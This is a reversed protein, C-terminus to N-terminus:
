ENILEEMTKIRNGVEIYKEPSLVPIIDLGLCKEMREGGQKEPEYILLNIFKSHEKELLDLIPESVYLVDPEKKHVGQHINKKMVITKLIQSYHM